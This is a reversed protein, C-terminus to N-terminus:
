LLRRLVERYRRLTSEYLAHRGSRVCWRGAVMVDRVPAVAPGFIAADLLTDGDHEALGADGTNLVIWDARADIKLQGVSQALAQAGGLCAARYLEGGSSTGVHALVNRRGQRLRQAYELLRLEQFPSVCVHSDGGVGFTGGCALFPAANFFGDGLDAETTPCLGAIAGSRALRVTEVDDMHTAHVLCWRDDVGIEDLLWEVPRKGSGHLCEEVERLQEAAHIHIPARADLSSVLELLSRLEAGTVARLSHPAIGIRHHPDRRVTTALSELIRQFGELDNIFRRQEPKPPVGGFGSHAYFVPLLTLGIGAASAAVAIREGTEARRAYANGAQDHHVYHFEAVSTYGHQLMEVYLQTAIIELDDPTLKELFRYMSERWSWFNDGEPGKIQTLGAMARQFAHSHLNPMGPVVPGDCIEADGHDADMTISTIVGEDSVDFLVDRAWGTALMASRAFYRSM